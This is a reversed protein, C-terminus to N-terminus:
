APFRVFKIKRTKLAEAAITIPSVVAADAILALVRQHLLSEMQAAADHDKLNFATDAIQRVYQQVTKVDVVQDVTIRDFVSIEKRKPM